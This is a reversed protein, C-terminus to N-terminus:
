DTYVMVTYTGDSNKNAKGGFNYRTDPNSGRNDVYNVMQENTMKEEEPTFRVKYMIKGYSNARSITEMM